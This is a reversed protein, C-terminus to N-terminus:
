FFPLLGYIVRGVILAGFFLLCKRLVGGPLLALAGFVMPFSALVCIIFFRNEYARFPTIRIVHTLGLVGIFAMLCGCWALWPLLKAAISARSGTSPTIVESVQASQPMAIARPLPPTAAPAAAPAVPPALPRLAVRPFYVSRAISAAIWTGGNTDCVLDEPALRGSAALQRLQEDEFPGIPQRASDLLWFSAM